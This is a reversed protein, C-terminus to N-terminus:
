LQENDKEISNKDLMNFVLPYFSLYEKFYYKIKNRPSKAAVCRVHFGAKYATFFARLIHYDSSVFAVEVSNVDGDTAEILRRSYVFNEYTTTAMEELVIREPDIGKEVLRDFIVQAETKKQGKESVNGSAIAIVDPHVILYEYAKDIRLMLTPSPKEGYVKAGLIILYDADQKKDNRGRIFAAVAYVVFSIVFYEIIALVLKGAFRM